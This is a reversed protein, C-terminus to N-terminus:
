SSKNGLRDVIKQKVITSSIQETYPIYVLVINRVDLWQQTFGMQTYYDKKAWDTGIAIIHPQIIEISETSDAGNINSIVKDVYICSELITKRQEYSYFPNFGKYEEIFRDTNLSVVVKDALQKCQKLFNVHGSHFLDFTGGTYLVKKETM